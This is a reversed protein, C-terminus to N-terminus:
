SWEVSPRPPGHKHGPNKQFVTLLLDAQMSPSGLRTSAWVPQKCRSCFCKLDWGTLWLSSGKRPELWLGQRGAGPEYDTLGPSVPAACPTCLQVSVRPPSRAWPPPPHTSWSHEPHGRRSLPLASRASLLVPTKIMGRCSPLAKFARPRPNTPKSKWKATSSELTCQPLSLLLIAGHGGRWGGSPEM